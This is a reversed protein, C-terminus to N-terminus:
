WRIPGIVILYNYYELRYDRGNEEYVIYNRNNNIDFSIEPDNNSLKDRFADLEDDSLESHACIFMDM